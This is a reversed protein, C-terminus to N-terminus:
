VIISWMMGRYKPLDGPKVWYGDPHQEALIAPVPGTNMVAEQAAFVEPSDATKGALDKLAFYRVGPNVADEELLWPMPDDNLRTKWDM